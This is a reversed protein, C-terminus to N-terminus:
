RKHALVIRMIMGLAILLWAAPAPAPVPPPPTAQNQVHFVYNWSALSASSANDFSGAQLSSDVTLNSVNGLSFTDSLDTTNINDVVILDRTSDGTVEGGLEIFGDSIIQDLTIEFDIDTFIKNSNSSSALFSWNFELERTNDLFIAPNATFMLSITSKTPDVSDIVESGLAVSVSDLDLSGVDSFANVSVAWNSFTFDGASLSGGGTLDTFTAAHITAPTLFVAFLAALATKYTHRIMM